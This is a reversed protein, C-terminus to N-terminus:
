LSTDVLHNWSLQNQAPHHQWFNAWLPYNIHAHTANLISKNDGIWNAQFGLGCFHKRNCSCSHHQERQCHWHYSRISFNLSSSDASFSIDFNNFRTISKNAFFKIIKDALNHEKLNVILFKHNFNKVFERLFIKNKKKYNNHALILNGNYTRVDVEIGLNKSTKKLIKISNVRHKVILTM